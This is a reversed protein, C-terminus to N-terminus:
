SESEAKAQLKAAVIDQYEVGIMNGIRKVLHEEYKDLTSDIYVLRWLDKLLAFKEELTFNENIVPTFEYLSISKNVNEAALEMLDHVYEEELSFSKKMTSIIKEKEVQDFSSDAKAIEIFLSCAALHVKQDGQSSSTKTEKKSSLIKKLADLM